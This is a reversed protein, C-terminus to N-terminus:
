PVTLLEAEVTLTSTRLIPKAWTPPMTPSNLEPYPTIPAAENPSVILLDVGERIFWEIDKQQVANDGGASRIIVDIDNYFMAEQLIEENQKLRWTDNACQSFGIVFREPKVGSCAQCFVVLILLSLIRRMRFM